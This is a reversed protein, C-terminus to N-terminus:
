RHHSTKRQSALASLACNNEAIQEHVLVDLHGVGDENGSKVIQGVEISKDLSHRSKHRVFSGVLLRAACAGIVPLGAEHM